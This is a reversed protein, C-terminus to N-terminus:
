SSVYLRLVYFTRTSAEARFLAVAGRVRLRILGPRETAEPTGVGREALTLVAGCIRMARQWPMHLVDRAAVPSWEVVWKM